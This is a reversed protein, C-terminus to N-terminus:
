DNLLAMIEALAFQYERIKAEYQLQLERLSAKKVRLLHTASQAKEVADGEPIAYEDFNGLAPPVYLNDSFVESSM